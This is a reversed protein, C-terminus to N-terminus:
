YERVQFTSRFRMRFPQNMRGFDENTLSLMAQRTELM